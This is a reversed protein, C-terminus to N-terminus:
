SQTFTLVVYIPENCGRQQSAVAGEGIDDGVFNSM